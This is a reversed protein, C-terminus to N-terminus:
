AARRPVPMALPERRTYPPRVVLPIVASCLMVVGIVTLAQAYQGLDANFDSKTYNLNLM